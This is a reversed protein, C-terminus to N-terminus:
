HTGGSRNSRSASRDDSHTRRIAPAPAAGRSEWAADSSPRARDITDPSEWDGGSTSGKEQDYEERESGGYSDTPEGDKDFWRPEEKAVKVVSLWPNGKKTAAKFLVDVEELSRSGTEPYLFYITPVIAFNTFAFVIYTKYTLDTFLAPTVVVVVFNM